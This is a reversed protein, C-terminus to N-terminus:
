KLARLMAENSADGNKNMKPTAAQFVKWGCSLAPAKKKRKRKEVGAEISCTFSLEDTNILTTSVTLHRIRFSFFFSPFMLQFNQLTLRFYFNLSQKWSARHCELCLTRAVCVHMLFFPPWFLSHKRVSFRSIPEALPHTHTRAPEQKTTAKNRKTWLSTHKPMSTHKHKYWDETVETEKDLRLHQVSGVICYTRFSFIYNPEYIHVVHTHTHLEFCYVKIM